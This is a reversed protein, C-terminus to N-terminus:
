KTLLFLIIKRVRLNKQLHKNVKKGFEKFNDMVILGLQISM